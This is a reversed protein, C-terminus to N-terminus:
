FKYGKSPLPSTEMHNFFKQTFCVFLCVFLIEETWGQFLCVEISHKMANLYELIKQLLQAPLVPCQSYMYKMVCVVQILFCKRTSTKLRWMIPWSKNHTKWFCPKMGQIHREVQTTFIGREKTSTSMAICHFM